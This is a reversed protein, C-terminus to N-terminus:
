RDEGERDRRQFWGRAALALGLLPLLAGGTVLGVQEDLGRVAAAVWLVLLSTTTAAALLGAAGVAPVVWCRVVAPRWRSEVALPAVVLGALCLGLLLAQACAAAMALALLTLAFPLLYLVTLTAVAAREPGRRGLAWDDVADLKRRLFRLLDSKDAAPADALLPSGTQLVSLPRSVFAAWYRAALPEQTAALSDAGAPLEGQLPLHAVAAATRDQVATGPASALRLTTQPHTIAVTVTLLLLLAVLWTRTAPRAVVGYGLLAVVVTVSSAELLSQHRQRWAGIAAASPAGVTAGLLNLRAVDRHREISARALWAAVRVMSRAYANLPGTGAITVQERQYDWVPTVTVQEGPVRPSFALVAGLVLLAAALQRALIVRASAWAPARRQLAPSASPQGNPGAPARIPTTPM